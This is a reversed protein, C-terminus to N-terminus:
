LLYTRRFAEYYRMDDADADDKRRRKSWAAGMCRFYFASECGRGSKIEDQFSKSVHELLIEM